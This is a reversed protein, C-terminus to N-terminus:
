QGSIEHYVSVIQKTINELSIESIHDRGNSRRPSALIEVLAKAINDPDRKVIASPIVSSLREKVDGVPVSVVPLNCAIAEQIVTPSGEQDSTLLLCDAANMLIPVKNPSLTGDLVIFSIEGIIREALVISLQALDLGKGKPNRGANFLVFRKDIEWGLELRAENRNRPTFILADVGTPLVAVRKQKWWLKNKLEESVCIIKKAKLASIQSLLHGLTWRLLNDGKSKNLDSGRFTIIVPINSAFCSVFATVTGYHAHIIHPKFTRILNRLKCFETLVKLPSTRSSLFFTKNTVGEKALFQIQRRAFIMSNNDPEGPIVSIVRLNTKTSHFTGRNM